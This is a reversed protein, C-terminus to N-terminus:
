REGEREVRRIRQPQRKHADGDGADGVVRVSAIVYADLGVQRLTANGVVVDDLVRHGVEPAGVGEAGAEVQEILARALERRDVLASRESVARSAAVAGEGVEHIIEAPRPRGGAAGVTVEATRAIVREEEALGVESLIAPAHAIRKCQSQTQAVLVEAVRDVRQARRGEGAKEVYIWHAQGPWEILRVLH